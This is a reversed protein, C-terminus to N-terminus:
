DRCSFGPKDRHEQWWVTASEIDSDKVQTGRGHFRFVERLPRPPKGERVCVLAWWAAWHVPTNYPFCAISSMTMPQELVTEDKLHWGLEAVARKDQLRGLAQIMRLKPLVEQEKHLALVLFRVATRHGIKGLAEAVVARQKASDGNIYRAVQPVALEHGLEGLAEIADLRLVEEGDMVKLLVAVTGADGCGGLIRLGTRQVGMSKHSLLKQARQRVSQSGVRALLRDLRHHPYTREEQVAWFFLDEALDPDLVVIAEAVAGFVAHDHHHLRFIEALPVAGRKDGLHQLGIAAYTWDSRHDKLARVLVEYSRPDKLLGLGPLAGMRTSIPGSTAEKELLPFIRPDRYHGLSECAFGRINPHKAQVALHLLRELIAPDKRDRAALVARRQTQYDDSDLDKLIESL